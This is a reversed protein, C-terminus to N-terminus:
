RCPPAPFPHLPHSLRTANCCTTGAPLSHLPLAHVHWSVVAAGAARLLGSLWGGIHYDLLMKKAKASHIANFEDTADTGAVLLISDAGGACTPLPPLLLLQLSTPCM